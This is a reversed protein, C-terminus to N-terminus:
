AADALSERGVGRPEGDDAVVRHQQRVLVRGPRAASLALEIAQWGASSFIAPKSM